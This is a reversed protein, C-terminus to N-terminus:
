IIVGIWEVEVVLLLVDSDDKLGVGMLGFRCVYMMLYYLKYVVVVYLLGEFWVNLICNCLVDYCGVKLVWMLYVGFSDLLSFGFWEGILMVVVKVCLLEGIEDGFM